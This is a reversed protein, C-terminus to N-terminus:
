RLDSLPNTRTREKGLTHSRALSEATKERNFHAFVHETYQVVIIILYTLYVFANCFLLHVIIHFFVENNVSFILLFFFPIIRHNRM